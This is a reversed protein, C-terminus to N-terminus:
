RQNAFGQRFAIVERLLQDSISAQPTDYKTIAVNLDEGCQAFGKGPGYQGAASSKHMAELTDLIESKHLQEGGGNAQGAFGKNLVQQPTAATRRQQVPARGFSNVQAELSKVLQATHLAVKGIDSIGKCLVLSLENQQSQSKEVREALEVAYSQFAKHLEQMYGTVDFSDSLDQNEEPNLSKTVEEAVTPEPTKIGLSKLLETQEDAPLEEHKAKELLFDKRNIPSHQAFQELKDLSKRLEEESVAGNLSKKAKEDDKDEDGNEGDKKPPFPPKGKSLDQGPQVGATAAGGQQNTVISM